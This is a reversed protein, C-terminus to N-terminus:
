AEFKRRADTLSLFWRANLWEQRLRGNFAAVQASDIPRGPRAFDLEVGNEYASRDTAKSIFGSGNDVKITRPLGREIRIRELTRVVDEGQLSQGVDIALCECSYDKLVALARLRQGDFLADSVFDMSWIENMASVLPAADRAQSRYLYVSRASNLLAGPQRQSAGFRRM